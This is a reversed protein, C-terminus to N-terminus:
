LLREAIVTITLMTGGQAFPVDPNRQAIVFRGVQYPQDPELTMVLSDADTPLFSTQGSSIRLTLTTADTLSGEIAIPVRTEGIQFYGTGTCTGTTQVCDLPIQEKIEDGSAQIIQACIKTCRGNATQADAPGAAWVMLGAMLVAALTAQFKVWRPIALIASM